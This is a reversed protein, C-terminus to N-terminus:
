KLKVEDANKGVISIAFRSFDMKNKIYDNMQELTVSEMAKIKKANDYVKGTMLLYKAYLMMLTATSEQAMVNSANNQNKAGLFERETIGDRQFVEVVKRMEDYAKKVANPNLGAYLVHSGVNMYSSPYSYVTYCLGLEERIKQFLRSSMGGGLVTSAISILETNEDFKEGEYALALHIQEIDKKVRKESFRLDFRPKDLFDQGLPLNGEVYKYVLEEARKEDINGAFVIVTNKATYYKERFKIIDERTFSSVNKKSGLITRGYGEDGFFAQSLTDLCLEDPTDDSMNIEEIVVGKEKEIEETPYVSNVYIDSLIEFSEDIKDTTSKIYYLTVEKATYANLRSGLFEPDASVSFSDRKKTGKFTTHEIFHSIGNESESEYASGVGAMIGCSVSFLQENKVVIMRLGSKFEKYSVM